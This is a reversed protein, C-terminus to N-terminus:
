APPNKPFKVLEDPVTFWPQAADCWIGMTPKMWSTDDLTGAKVYQLDPTSEVDSYIPSGCNSCFHRHVPLGSIGVDEYVSPENSAFRLSGTPVAVIISFSTGTQKQCNPCNCIAVLVPEAPSSYRVSGCLCSGSIKPM